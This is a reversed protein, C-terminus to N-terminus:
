YEVRGMVSSQLTVASIGLLNPAIPTLLPMSYRVAVTVADSRADHPDTIGQNSANTVAAGGYCHWTVVVTAGAIVSGSAAGNSSSERAMEDAISRISSESEPPLDSVATGASTGCASNATAQQSQSVALRLGQRATNAVVERYYFARGFDTAGIGILLLVPLAIALEAISQGRKRKLPRM